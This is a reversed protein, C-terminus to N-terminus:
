LSKIHVYAYAETRYLEIYPIESPLEKQSQSSYGDANCGRGGSFSIYVWDDQTNLDEM